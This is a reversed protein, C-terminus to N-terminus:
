SMLRMRTSSRESDGVPSGPAFGMNSTPKAYVALSSIQTRTDPGFPSSPSLSLWGLSDYTIEGIIAEIKARSALNYFALQAKYFAVAILRATKSRRMLALNTAHERFLPITAAIDRNSLCKHADVHDQRVFFIEDGIKLSYLTHAPTDGPIVRISDIPFLIPLLAVPRPPSAKPFVLPSALPSSYAISSKSSPWAVKGGPAFHPFPVLPVSKPAPLSSRIPAPNQTSSGSSSRSATTATNAPSVSSVLVVTIESAEKKDKEPSGSATGPADLEFPPLLAEETNYVSVPSSPTPSSRSNQLWFPPAELHPPVEVRLASPSKTAISM